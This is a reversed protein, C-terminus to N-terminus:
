PLFLFHSFGSDFLGGDFRCLVFRFNSCKDALDAVQLAFDFAQFGFGSVFFRSDFFFIGGFGRRHTGFDHAQGFTHGGVAFRMLVLQRFITFGFGHVKSGAQNFPANTRWGDLYYRM